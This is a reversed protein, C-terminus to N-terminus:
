REAKGPLSGCRLLRDAIREVRRWLTVYELTDITRSWHDRFNAQLDPRKPTCLWALVLSYAVDIDPDNRTVYRDLITERFRPRHPSFEDLGRVKELYLMAAAPGALLFKVYKRVVAAIHSHNASDLRYLENLRVFQSAHGAIAATPLTLV